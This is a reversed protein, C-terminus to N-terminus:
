ERHHEKSQDDHKTVNTKSKQFLGYRELEKWVKQFLAYFEYVFHVKRCLRCHRKKWSRKRLFRNTINETARPLRINDETMGKLIGQIDGLLKVRLRVKKVAREMEYM